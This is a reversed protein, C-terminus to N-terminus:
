SLAMTVLTQNHFGRVGSVRAIEGYTYFGAVPVSPAAAGISTMETAVGDPGLVTKRAICDFMLLGLPQHSGLLSLADDCSASTGALVSERDGEMLWVLSGQPIEAISTLAGTDLNAGSIFRVEETTRRRLGLPHTMAFLTFAEADHKLDPSAGARELYVDVAASGDLEFVSTEDSRSVMMPEGVPRWGHRVGIGIPSDSGIAAAVVANDIVKGNFVQFTKVM